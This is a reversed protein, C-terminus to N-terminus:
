DVCGSKFGAIYAFRYCRWESQVAPHDYRGDGAMVPESVWYKEFSIRAMDEMEKETLKKM